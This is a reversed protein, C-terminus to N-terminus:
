ELEVRLRYYNGSPSPSPHIPYSGVTLGSVIQTFPQQLDETWDVSYTRGPVATWSLGIPTIQEIRFFSTDDNPLTGAIAEQVNLVGDGDSDIEPLGAETSGLHEVEWGDPMGDADGDLLAPDVSLIGELRAAFSLDTSDLTKQHIEVAMVNTGPVMASPSVVFTYFTDEAAGGVTTSALTGYNIAGGAMNDRVVEQGNLYVVAGDDRLLGLSLDGLSANGTVVFSKRFYTTPHKDNNIGGFSVLTVEDNDGYGLQAAGSAWASDNYAPARWAVGLDVGQDHYKWVANSALLVTNSAYLATLTVDHGPMTLTTSPAQVDAVGGVNGIWQVFVQGASPADAQIPVV